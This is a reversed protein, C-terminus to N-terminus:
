SGINTFKSLATHAPLFSGGAIIVVIGVVVSLIIIDRSNFNISENDEGSAGAKNGDNPNSM